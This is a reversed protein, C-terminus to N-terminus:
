QTAPDQSASTFIFDLMDDVEKGTMKKIMNTAVDPDVGNDTLRIFLLDEKSQETHAHNWKRIALGGTAVALITLIIITSVEPTVLGSVIIFVTFIGLFIGVYKAMKFTM